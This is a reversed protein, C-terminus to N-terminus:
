EDDEVKEVESSAVESLLDEASEEIEKCERKAKIKKWLDDDIDVKPM